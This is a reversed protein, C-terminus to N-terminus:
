ARSCRIQQCYGGAFGGRWMCRDGSFTPVLIRLGDGDNLISLAHYNTLFSGRSMWVVYM